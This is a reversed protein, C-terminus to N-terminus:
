MAKQGRSQFPVKLTCYRLDHGRICQMPNRPQNSSSSATFTQAWLCHLDGIEIGLEFICINQYSYPLIEIHIEVGLELICTNQYSYALFVYGNRLAQALSRFVLVIKCYLVFIEKMTQNSKEYSAM